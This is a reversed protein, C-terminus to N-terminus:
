PKSSVETCLHPEETPMASPHNVAALARQVLVWPGLARPYATVRGTQLVRHDADEVTVKYHGISPTGTGDNHILLWGLTHARPTYADLQIRLM